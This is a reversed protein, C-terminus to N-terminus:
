FFFFFFFFIGERSVCVVYVENGIFWDSALRATVAAQRGRRFNREVRAAAAAKPGIPEGARKPLQSLWLSFKREHEPNEAPQHM